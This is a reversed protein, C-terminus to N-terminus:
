GWDYCLVPVVVCACLYFCVLCGAVVFEYDLLPPHANDLMNGQLLVDARDLFQEAGAVFFRYGVPRLLEWSKCGLVERNSRHLFEGLTLDICSSASFERM